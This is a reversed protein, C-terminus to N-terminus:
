KAERKNMLIVAREFNGGEGDDIMAKADASMSKVLGKVLKQTFAYDCRVEDLRIIARILDDDSLEHLGDALDDLSVPTTVMMHKGM